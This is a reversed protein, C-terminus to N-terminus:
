SENGKMNDLGGLNIGFTGNEPKDQQEKLM